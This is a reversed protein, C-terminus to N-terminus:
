RFQLLQSNTKFPFRIRSLALLPDGLLSVGAIAIFSSLRIVFIYEVGQLIRVKKRRSTRREDAKLSSDRLSGTDGSQADGDSDDSIVTVDLESM